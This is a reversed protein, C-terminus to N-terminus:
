RYVQTSNIQSVFYNGLQGPLIESETSNYSSSAWGEMTATYLVPTTRLKQAVSISHVVWWLACGCNWVHPCRWFAAQAGGPRIGMGLQTTYHMRDSRLPAVVFLSAISLARASPLIMERLASSGDRSLSGWHWEAGICFHRQRLSSFSACPAKAVRAVSASALRLRTCVYRAM